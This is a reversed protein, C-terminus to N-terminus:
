KETEGFVTPILMDRVILLVFTMLAPWVFWAPTAEIVSTGGDFGDGVVGAIWLVVCLTWLGWLIRLIRSM